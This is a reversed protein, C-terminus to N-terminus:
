PCSSASEKALNVRGSVSVEITRKQSGVTPTARCLTLTTQTAGVGTPLFNISNDESSLLFGSPLPPQTYIVAGGALIKWGDSWNEGCTTGSHSACLTVPANRKIAESRALQASAVFNNSVSNLKSGLAFERFSPIAITALIAMISVTVMLEILTFGHQACGRRRHCAAAVPPQRGCMQATRM